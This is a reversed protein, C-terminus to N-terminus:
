WPGNQTKKCGKEAKLPRRRVRPQSDGAPKLEDQGPGQRVQDKDTKSVLLGSRQDPHGARGKLLFFQLSTCRSWGALATGTSFQTRANTPTHTRIPTHTHTHTHTQSARTPPLVSQRRAFSQPVGTLANSLLPSSEGQEVRASGASSFYVEQIM